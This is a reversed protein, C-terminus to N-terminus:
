PRRTAARAAEELVALTEAAAKQWSFRKVNEHGAAILQARLEEDMSLRLMAAAIADVDTPDVLLAADGAIEPLSSNNSTLVPVGAQQAELVPLGFGEFQSPYCFFLAGHLLAAADIPSLYGTRHLASGLGLHDIAALLPESKWGPAGALVLDFRDHGAARLTAFAQAIRLLNKRPQLTGIFLAYPRGIGHRMRADASDAPTVIPAPPAAEHVVRVQAAAAHYACRLDSATAESVAILRTARRVAYRTGADLYLRQSHTHTAPLHLYGLDHVTVVSPPLRGPAVLPLVHAPIFLVEPRDRQIAAALRRHTWARTQPLVRQIAPAGGALMPHTPAIATPLYLLWQHMHAAPLQLLGRIIEQAYRETGTPHARIARSADIAIRM